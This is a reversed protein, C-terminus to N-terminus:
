FGLFLTIVWCNIISMLIVLFYSALLEWYQSMVLTQPCLFALLKLTTCIHWIKISNGLLYQLNNRISCITETITIRTGMITFVSNTGNIGVCVPMKKIDQKLVLSYGFRQVQIVQVALHLLIFCFLIYFCVRGNFHLQRTCWLWLSHLRSWCMLQPYLCSSLTHNHTHTPAPILVCKICRLIRCENNRFMWLLELPPYTHNSPIDWFLM